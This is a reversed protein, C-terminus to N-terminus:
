LCDVSPLYKQCAPSGCYCQKRARDVSMEAKRDGSNGACYHYSLEEGPMIDRKAFMAIRPIENDVRVAVLYLNPECSHNIFRAISGKFRADIYTQSTKGNGFAEDLVFLYNM